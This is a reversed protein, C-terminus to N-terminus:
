RGGVRGKWADSSVEVTFMGELDGSNDNIVQFGIAKKADKSDITRRPFGNVSHIFAYVHDERFNPGPERFAFAYVGDILFGRFGAQSGNQVDDFEHFADHYFQDNREVSGSITITVWDSYEHTTFVPIDSNLPIAITEEVLPTPTLVPAILPSNFAIIGIGIIGCCVLALVIM